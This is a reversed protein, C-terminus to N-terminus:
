LLLKIFHEARLVHGIGPLDRVFALFTIATAKLTRQDKFICELSLNFNRQTHLILLDM